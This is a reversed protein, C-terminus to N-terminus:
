RQTAETTPQRSPPDPPAMTPMPLVRVDDPVGPVGTPPGASYPRGRIVPGGSLRMREAGAKSAQLNEVRSKDGDVLVARVEPRRALQHFSSATGVAEIKYFLIRRSYAAERLGAPNSAGPVQSDAMFMARQRGVLKEFRESFPGDLFYLDSAGFSMTYTAASASVAVKAEVRAPELQNSSLLEDLQKADLGSAFVVVGGIRESPDRQLQERLRAMSSQLRKGNASQDSTGTASALASEVLEVETAPAAPSLEAFAAAAIGILLLRASHSM